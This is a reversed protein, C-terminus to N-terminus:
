AAREIPHGQNPVVKAQQKLARALAKCFKADMRRLQRQTWLGVRQDGRRPRELSARSTPTLKLALRRKLKM